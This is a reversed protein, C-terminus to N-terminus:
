MRRHGDLLFRIADSISQDHIAKDLEPVSKTVDVLCNWSQPMSKTVMSDEAAWIESGLDIVGVRTRNLFSLM